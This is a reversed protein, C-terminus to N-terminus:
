CSSSHPPYSYSNSYPCPCSLLSLFTGCAVIFIYWLCLFKNDYVFFLSQCHYIRVLIVLLVTSPLISKSLYREEYSSSRVFRTLLPPPNWILEKFIGDAARVALYLLCNKWILDMQRSFRYPWHGLQKGSCTTIFALAHGTPKQFIDLSCERM